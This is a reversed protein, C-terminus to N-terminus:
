GSCWTILTEIALSVVASRHKLDNAKRLTLDANKIKIKLGHRQVVCCGGRPKCIMQAASAWLAQEDCQVIGPKNLAMRWAQQLKQFAMGNRKLDTLNGVVQALKSIGVHKYIAVVARTAKM